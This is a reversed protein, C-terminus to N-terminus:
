KEIQMREEAAEAGDLPSASIWEQLNFIAFHLICISRASRVM